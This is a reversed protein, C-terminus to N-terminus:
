GGIRGRPARLASVAAGGQGTKITGGVTSPQLTLLKRRIAEFSIGAYLTRQAAAMRDKEGQVRDKFEKTYQSTLEDAASQDQSGLVANLGMGLLLPLLAM